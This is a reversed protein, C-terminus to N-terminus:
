WATSTVNANQAAAQEFAQKRTVLFYLPFVLVILGSIAAVWLFPTSAFLTTVQQNQWEEMGPFLAMSRQMLDLMRSRGGPALYFVGANVFLFLCYAVGITRALPKLRLLGIGIYLHIATVALLYLAAPWGAVIRTFLVVPTHLYLNLPVFLCGVLLLWAIITLSLPRGPPRPAVVAVPAVSSSIAETTTAGVAPTPSAAFQQKVKARNFFVLWWVGVAVVAFMFTGITTRVGNMIAPNVDQNPPTPFPILLTMLGGFGFMLILLVSFVITSIRAWEKLRFLGIATLIGWVAPGVYFLSGLVMMAKFMGPAFPTNDTKSVPALLPIFLMFIGMLLTIASGVLSLVGILLVGVSPKRSPEM